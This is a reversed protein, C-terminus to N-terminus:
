MFISQDLFWEMTARHTHKPEHRELLLVEAENKIIKPADFLNEELITRCKAEDMKRRLIVQKPDMSFFIMGCCSAAMM